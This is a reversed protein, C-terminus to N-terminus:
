KHFVINVNPPAFDFVFNAIVLDKKGRRNLDSAIMGVTNAGSAFFSRKFTGDGQNFLMCVQQSSMLGVALDTRGDGDFDGVVLAGPYQGPDIETGAYFTGDGNSYYIEIGIEGPLNIAVDDKGDGNFDGVATMSGNGLPLNNGAMFQLTRNGTNLFTGSGTAVDLKGDGKFDGVIYPWGLNAVTVPSFEYSGVGYFIQGPCQAYECASIVDLHGDGDIDAVTVNSTPQTFTIPSSSFNFTSNNPWIELYTNGGLLDVVGKGNLDALGFSTPDTNAAFQFSNNGLNQFVTGPIGDILDGGSLIDPLGDGNIDGTALSTVTSPHLAVPDPFNRDKRGLSLSVFSFRDPVVVDPLGDGNFDGVAVYQGEPGVFQQATFNGHGDGFYYVITSPETGWPGALDPFGDHDFDGSILNINGETNMSAVQTFSGNGNGALSYLTASSSGTQQVQVILDPAGDLNFDLVTAVGVIGNLGTAVQDNFQGNGQNFLIHFTSDPAVYLIDPKGDKNFDAVSFYRYNGPYATLTIPAAFAGGTNQLWILNGGTGALNQVALVLDPQGDGDLDSMIANAPFIGPFTQSANALQFNGHGDGLLVNATVTQGGFQSISVLDLNGDGNVDGVALAYPTQPVTIYQRSSLTGDARGNLIAISDSNASAVFPGPMIVDAFGDGNVDAAVVFPADSEGEWVLFGPTAQMVFPGQQPAYVTFPLSNSTKGGALVSFQHAAVTDDFTQDIQAQLIGDFPITNVPQGDILVQGGTINQGSVDVLGLPVGVMM